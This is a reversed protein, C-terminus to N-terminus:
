VLYCSFIFREALGQAYEMMIRKDEPRGVLKRMMLQGIKNMENEIM